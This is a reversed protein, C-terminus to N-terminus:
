MYHMICTHSVWTLSLKILLNINKRACKRSLTPPPPHRPPRTLLSQKYCHSILPLTHLLIINKYKTNKLYMISLIKYKLYLNCSNSMVCASTAYGLLKTIHISRRCKAFIWKNLIKLLIIIVLPCYIHYIYDKEM